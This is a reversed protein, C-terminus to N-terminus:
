FRIGGELSRRLVTLIRVTSPSHIRLPSNMESNFCCQGDVAVVVDGCRLGFQRGAGGFIVRSVHIVGNHDPKPAFEVLWPREPAGDGRRHPAPRLVFSSYGAMKLSEVQIGEVNMQKQIEAAPINRPQKGSRVSRSNIPLGGMPASAADFTDTDLSPDNTSTSLFVDGEEIQEHFMRHPLPRSKSYKKSDKQIPDMKLSLWQTGTSNRSFNQPMIQRLPTMRQMRSSLFATAFTNWIERVRGMPRRDCVKIPQSSEQPITESDGYRHDHVVLAIAISVVAISCLVILESGNYGDYGQLTEINLRPAM